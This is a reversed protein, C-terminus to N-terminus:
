CTSIIDIIVFKVKIGQALRVFSELLCITTRVANLIPKVSFSIDPYFGLLLLIYWTISYVKDPLLNQEISHIAFEM